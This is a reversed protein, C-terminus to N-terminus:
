RAQQFLSIATLTMEAKKAWFRQNTSELCSTRRTSSFNEERQNPSSNATLSM